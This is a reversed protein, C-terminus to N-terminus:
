FISVGRVLVVGARSASSPYASGNGSYPSATAHSPYPLAHSLYASTVSPYPFAHSLYASANGAATASLKVISMLATHTEIDLNYM